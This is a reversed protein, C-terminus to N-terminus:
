IYVMNGQEAGYGRYGRTTSLADAHQLFFPVQIDVSDLVSNTLLETEGFPRPSSTVEAM